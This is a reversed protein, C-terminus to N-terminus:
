FHVSHFCFMQVNDLCFAASSGLRVERKWIKLEGIHKLNQSEPRQWSLFSKVNGQFDESISFVMELGSRSGPGHGVGEKIRLKARTDLISCFWFEPMSSLASVAVTNPVSFLFCSPLHRLCIADEQSCWNQRHVNNRQGRYTQAPALILFRGLTGRNWGMGPGPLVHWTGKDEVSTGMHVLCWTWIEMLTLRVWLSSQTLDM